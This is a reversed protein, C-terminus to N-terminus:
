QPPRVGDRSVQIRLATMKGGAGPVATLNVIAGPVLYSRDGPVLTSISADAPVVIKQAGGEYTLTLERGSASRVMASVTANTMTQDSRGDFPRHGPNLPKPFRRIEFAALTGDDRKSSTVGLFDGPKIETIAIPQTAIIVTKESLAIAADTGDRSKVSITSGDFATITGRVRVNSQAYGTTSALALVGALLAAALKGM